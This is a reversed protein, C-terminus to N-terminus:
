YRLLAGVDEKGTDTRDLTQVRSSQKIAAEVASEMVDPVDEFEAGCRPCTKGTVALWECRPCKLGKESRGFPVVLTDVRGENLAKLAHGLGIVGLRGAAAEAELRELTARERQGELEEEVQLSKQLVDDANAHMPLTTRAVVRRKLYDHLGEEFAPVIEEPGALILHDFNRRKFYRLLVDGVHKLHREVLEEIHRQFRAQSWGGQDHQGPVDDFVDTAEEIRGMKALFVRAKERDVIVTCFSEYTEVMAELPLVYPHDAIVARDQVSRPVLVKEWMGAESSSFLAVGRNNGRDLGNLFDIFRDVDGKVSRKAEKDGAAQDKLQTCLAEARVMYNERRPFRRGDVDLYLSSVPAGNSSWEALKRLYDRDLDAM